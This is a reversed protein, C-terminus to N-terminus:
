EYDTWSGSLNWACAEATREDGLWRAVYDHKNKYSFCGCLSKIAKFYRHEEAMIFTILPVPAMRLLGRVGEKTPPYVVELVCFEQLRRRIRLKGIFINGGASIAFYQNSPHHRFRWLLWERYYKPAIQLTEPHQEPLIFDGAELQRWTAESHEQLKTMRGFARFPFTLLARLSVLLHLQNRVQWGAAMYLRKNVASPFNFLLSIKQSELLELSRRLIRRSLGQRQYKIATATDCPQGALLETGDVELRMYQVCRISTPVNQSETYLILSPGFPSELHKWRFQSELGLERDRENSHADNTLDVFQAIIDSNKGQEFQVIDDVNSSAM